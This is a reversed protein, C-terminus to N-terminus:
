IPKSFFKGKKVEVQGPVPMYFINHVRRLLQGIDENTRNKYLEEPPFPSTVYVRYYQAQRAAGKVEVRFPYIDLIPSILDHFTTWDARLDELLIAEHADYGIWWKRTTPRFLEEGEQEHVWQSKGTGTPGYIWTVVFKKHDIPRPKEKYEIYKEAVRISQCNRPEDLFQRMSTSDKLTTWVTELDTRRREGIFKMYEEWQEETPPVGSQYPSKDEKSCYEQWYSPTKDKNTVFHTWGGRNHFKRYQQQQTTPSHLWYAGQLHPTKTTPAIERGYVIWQCTPELKDHIFKFADDGYNNWTFVFLDYKTAPPM